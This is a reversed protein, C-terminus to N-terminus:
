QIIIIIRIISPNDALISYIRIRICQVGNQAVPLDDEGDDGDTRTKSGEGRDM